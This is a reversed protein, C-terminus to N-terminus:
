RTPKLLEILGDALTARWHVNEHGTGTERYTVDYGKAVLVDRFHRNASTISEDLALEDLARNANSIREYVGYELYFRVPVRPGTLYMAALANPEASLSTNEQRAPSLHFAGSQSLVNGFRDPYHLAISAARKGGTSFGGVVVDRPSTSIAYSSRLQPLLEEVIAREFADGFGGLDTPRFQSTDVFCVVSPRIRKDAALNDLTNLARNGWVDDIYAYGDFLVVLPYPGGTPSYGAPTYVFIDRDGKLIVSKLQAQKLVGRTSPLRRFWTEDPAGPLELISKGNVISPDLEEPYRRANLPDIQQTLYRDQPRDNPSLAYTFRSGRRVRITKYWVDTGALHSLYYEEARGQTTPPWLLLVNQLDFTEKWLFTVLVDDESNAVPEVFPANRAADQWFREVAGAPGEKVEHALRKVRESPYIDRANAQVGRLRSSAETRDLVLTYSGRTTGSARIQIRFTGSTPALFGVTVKQSPQPESAVFTKVTANTPSLVALTATVGQLSLTGSVLDGVNAPVAYEHLDLAALDRTLPSGFAFTPAQGHVLGSSLGVLIAVCATRAAKM